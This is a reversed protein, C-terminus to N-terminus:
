AKCGSPIACAKRSKRAPGTPATSPRASTRASNRATPWCPRRSDPRLSGDALRRSERADQADASAGRRDARGQRRAEHRPPRHLARSRRRRHLPRRSDRGEPRARRGARRSRRRLHGHRQRELAPQVAMAAATMRSAASLRAAALFLMQDELADASLPWGHSFVVPQGTGWDKYYIQTGDQTTITAM